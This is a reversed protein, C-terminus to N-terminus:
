ASHRNADLKQAALARYFYTNADGNITSIVGRDEQGRKRFEKIMGIIERWDSQGFPTYITVSTRRRFARSALYAQLIRNTTRPYCTTPESFYGYQAGEGGRNSM